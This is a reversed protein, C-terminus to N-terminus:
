TPCPRGTVNSKKAGKAIWDLFRKLPGSKELKEQLFTKESVPGPNHGM